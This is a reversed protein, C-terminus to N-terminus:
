QVVTCCSTRHEYRGCKGLYCLVFCEALECGAVRVLGEGVGGGRRDKPVALIEKRSPQQGATGSDITAHGAGRRVSRGVDAGADVMTTTTAAITGRGGM